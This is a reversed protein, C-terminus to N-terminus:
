RHCVVCADRQNKVVPCEADSEPIGDAHCAVCKLDDKRELIFPCRHKMRGSPTPAKGAHCDTCPTEAAIGSSKPACGAPRSLPLSELYVILSEVAHEDQLALKFSPMTSGAFDATPDLLSTKLHDISRRGATRLDPGFDLGGAGNDTLPHCIPCGLGAYLKAGELLREQGKHEGPVHCRACAAQVHPAKRLPDPIGLSPAAHATEPTLARGEGGHCVTCGIRRPDHSGLGPGHPRLVVEGKPPDPATRDANVHCTTCREPEGTCPTVTRIGFSRVGVDVFDAAKRQLRIYTKFTSRVGVFTFVGLLAILLVILVIRFRKTSKELTDHVM